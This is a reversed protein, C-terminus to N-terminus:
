SQDTERTEAGGSLPSKKLPRAPIGGVIVGSPVDRTVVAGAAVVARAGIRVGPLIIVRAGVWAGDGIEVPKRVIEGQWAVPGDHKHEHDHTYLITHPGIAAARGLTLGGALDIISHACIRSDPGMRLLGAQGEERAFIACHDDISSGACLNWQSNTELTTYAGVECRAGFIVKARRGARLTTNEGLVCGEAFYVESGQGCAITVNANVAMGDGLSLRGPGEVRFPFHIRLDQGLSCHSLRYLWYQRRALRAVADRAWLALIRGIM